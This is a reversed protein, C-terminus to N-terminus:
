ASADFRFPTAQASPREDFERAFGSLAAFQEADCIKRFSLHRVLCFASVELFSLDREKPLASCIEPWRTELWELSSALTARLKREHASPPADAAAGLRGMVLSVGTNMVHLVLEQANALLPNTFSESWVIRRPRLAARELERCINAAGYFTGNPGALVPVKLAPNGGYAAPDLSALDLVPRFEYPVELEAAFIRAVRSYHSSQRAFLTFPTSM